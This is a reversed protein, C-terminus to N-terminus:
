LLLDSTSIYSDTCNDTDYNFYGAELQASVEVDGFAEDSTGKRSFSELKVTVVGEVNMIYDVFRGPYLMGGFELSTKFAELAQKTRVKISEVPYSPNYYVSVSYRVADATTSLVTVKSGLPRSRAIYNTFNLRESYDLPVLEGSESKKAVHLTIIREQEHVAAVAVIRSAPDDKEYRLVANETDFVLEHGNQFLFCLEAYWEATGPRTKMIRKNVDETFRDFILEFTHIVVAFAYVWLRWEAVGSASLTFKVNLREIISERIEIISRAM